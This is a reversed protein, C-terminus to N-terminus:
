VIFTKNEVDLATVGSRSIEVIDFEQIEVLFQDIEGNSAVIQGILCADDFSIIKGSFSFLKEQIDRMKAATYNIKILLLEKSITKEYPLVVADLVYEIKRLQKDIQKHDLEGDDAILVSIRSIEPNVSEAVTLQKINVGRRTFVNSVRVLAGKKNKVLVSIIIRNDTM